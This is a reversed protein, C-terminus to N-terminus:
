FTLQTISKQFKLITMLDLMVRLPSLHLFILNVLTWNPVVEMHVMLM